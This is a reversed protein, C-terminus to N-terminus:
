PKLSTFIGEDLLPIIEIAPEEYPHAKRLVNIVQSVKGVAYIM